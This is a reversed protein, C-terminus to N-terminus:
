KSGLSARLRDRESLLQAAISLAIEHPHNSGFDLGIPCHFLEAKEAALGGAIMERRLIAAKSDSGIVGVFPFARQSLIRQLIPRDSQHGNTMLLVFAQDPLAPVADAPNELSEIRVNRARPLRGLWEPRSDYCTVTCPLPLLVPILAQAIHGAGFIVIPWPGQAPHPELYFKVSGGCTMGIDTKLSWNVFRPQLAGAALMEMALALAAAEVRGGGVTGAHRGDPTVLMKAGADQPTSGIADVMVVLVFPRAERELRAVHEYLTPDGSADSDAPLSTM